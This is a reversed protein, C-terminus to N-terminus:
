ALLLLNEYILANKKWTPSSPTVNGYQNDLAEARKHKNCLFKRDLLKKVGIEWREPADVKSLPLTAWTLKM